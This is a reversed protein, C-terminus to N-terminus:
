AAAKEQKPQEVLDKLTQMPTRGKCRYGSHTRRENYFAIFADLDVQLEEVSTYIKERFAKAFFENKLTQHFREVFGNTYPAAPRTTRHEIGQASLYAEFLHTDPLGCYERGCDTLIAAVDLGQEDFFPLIKEHVLATSHISKKTVCLKSFGVSTACDVASQAYIKGVGKICGVFYLDQSLLEGPRSAEVHNDSAEDLRKLRAVAKLAKETMVARGEGAERELWLYRQLKTNLGHRLWVGRVGTGSVSVGEMELEDAIRNHSYSAFERTKALIKEELEPALRGSGKPRGPDQPALGDRGFQEYAKKMEYFSSRAIGAKRCAKSINKMEVSLQLLSVKADILREKPSM